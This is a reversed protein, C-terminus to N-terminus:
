LLPRLSEAATCMPLILPCGGAREVADVYRCDLVQSAGEDRECALSSTIGIIPRSM